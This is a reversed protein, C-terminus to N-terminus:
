FSWANTSFYCQKSSAARKRAVQFPLGVNKKKVCHTTLSLAWAFLYFCRMMLSVNNPSAVPSNVGLAAVRSLPRARAAPSTHEPAEAGSAAHRERAGRSCLADDDSRAGDHQKDVRVAHVHRRYNKKQGLFFHSSARRVEGASRSRLSSYKLRM